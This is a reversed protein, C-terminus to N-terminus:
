TLDTAVMFILM